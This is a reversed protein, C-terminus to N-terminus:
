FRYRDLLLLTAFEHNTQREINNKAIDMYEIKWDGGGNTEVWLQLKESCKEVGWNNGGGAGRKNPVRSYMKVCTSFNPM